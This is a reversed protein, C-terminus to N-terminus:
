GHVRDQAEEMIAMGSSTGLRDAGAALMTLAQELTRIGGSAKVGVLGGAISRLLTVDEVTAGGALFGTSTKLFDVGAAVARRAAEAKRVEDLLGCELMVKLRGGGQHVADAMAALGEDVSRWRGELVWGINIVVDIESAGHGLAQRAEELKVATTTAGLPFGCVSAVEVGSGRLERVAAEIWVPNVCVAAFGWERAQRCLEVVDAEGAEAKLLTHDISQALRQLEVTEM